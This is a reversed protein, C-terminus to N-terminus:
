FGNLKAKPPSNFDKRNVNYVIVPLKPKALM